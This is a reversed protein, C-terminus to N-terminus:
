PLRDNTILHHADSDVQHVRPCPPHGWVEELHIAAQGGEGHPGLVAKGEVRGRVRAHADESTCMRVRANRTDKRMIHYQYSTDCTITNVLSISTPVTVTDSVGNYGQTNLRMADYPM